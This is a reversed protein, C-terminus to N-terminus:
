EYLVGMIEQILKQYDELENKRNPIQGFSNKISERKPIYTQFFEISEEKLVEKTYKFSSTIPNVKTLLVKCLLNKKVSDTLAFVRSLEMASPEIPIIILTAAEIASKIIDSNQPPTDIIVYDYGDAKKMNRQNTLEFDFPMEAIDEVWETASGQPDSDKLLVRGHKSLLTALYIATTTKGVGGKANAITIFTTM